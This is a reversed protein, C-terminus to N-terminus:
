QENPLPAARKISIAAEVAKLAELQQQLKELAHQSEELEQALAKQHEDSQSIAQILRTNRADANIMKQNHQQLLSVLTLLEPSLKMNALTRFSDRARIWGMLDALQQNVLGYRYLELPENLPKKFTKFATEAQEQDYAMVVDILAIWLEIQGQGSINLSSRLQSELLSQQPKVQCGYLFTMLVILLVNLKM